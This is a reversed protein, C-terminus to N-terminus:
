HSRDLILSPYTTHPKGAALGSGQPLDPSSAVVPYIASFLAISSARSM